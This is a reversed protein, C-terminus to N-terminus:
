GTLSSRAIEAIVAEAIVAEAIVAEAIVAEAIVAETVVAEAVSVAIESFVIESSVPAPYTIEAGHRELPLVSMVIPMALAAFRREIATCVNM